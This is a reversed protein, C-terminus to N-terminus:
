KLASRLKRADERAQVLDKRASKAASVLPELSSKIANADAGPQIALLTSVKGGSAQQAAQIQSQLDALESKETATGGGPAAALKAALDDHVKRLASVTAAEVDFANALHVKPAVLMYVRYDDVM